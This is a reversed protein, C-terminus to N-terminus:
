DLRTKLRRKWERITGGKFQKVTKGKQRMTRTKLDSGLLEALEDASMGLEKLYALAAAHIAKKEADLYKLQKTKAVTYATTALHKNVAKQLPRPLGKATLPNPSAEEAELELGLGFRSLGMLYKTAEDEIGAEKAAKKIETKARSLRQSRQYAAEERFPTGAKKARSREFRLRMAESGMAGIEGENYTQLGMGFITALGIAARPTVGEERLADYIDRLSMPMALDRGVTALTTEEGIVNQLGSVNIATGVVPSFKTRAFTAMIDFVTKGGFPVEGGALTFKDRLPLLTGAQTKTTGWAIRSGAVMLTGIGGTLDLRENGSKLKMFDSSLPNLELSPKNEEDDDPWIEALLKVAVILTGMGMLIKAYDKAIVKVVRKNDLKAAQWLPQFTALQLSRAFFRPSFLSTALPKGAAKWSGLSGRGTLLMAWHALVIAEEHTVKGGDYRGTVDMLSEFIWARMNHIPSEYARASAAVIPTKETWPGIYVEEQLSEHRRKIDLGAAEAERAHPLEERAIIQKFEAKLGAKGTIDFGWAQFAPIVSKAFLLPHVWMAYWNQRGFASVDASTVVARSLQVMNVALAGARGMTTRREEEAKRQGEHFRAIIKQKRWLLDLIEKDTQEPKRPRPGFDKKEIRQKWWELRKELSKIYQQRKRQAIQEQYVTPGTKRAKDRKQRLGALTKEKARIADNTIPKGKEKLGLRGEGIDEELQRIARNLAREKNIEKQAESIVKVETVLDKRLIRLFKLEARLQVLRAHEPNSPDLVKEKREIKNLKNLDLEKEVSAILKELRSTATAVWSKLVAEKSPGFDGEKKAINVEKILAVEDETPERQEVGTAKAEEDLRIMDDLKAIQQMQGIIDRAEVSVADTSLERYQGYGSIADIVGRWDLAHKPGLIANLEIGVQEQVEWWDTKGAQVVYRLLKKALRTVAAPKPADTGAPDFKDGATTKMTPPKVKSAVKAWAAELETRYVSVDLGDASMDTLFESLHQIGDEVAFVAADDTMQQIEAQTYEEASLAVDLKPKGMLASIMKVKHAAYKNRAAKSVGPKPAVRVKPAYTGDAIQQKIEDIQAETADTTTDKRDLEDGIERLENAMSELLAEEKTSPADGGRARTREGVMDMLSFKPGIVMSRAQLARGVETGGLRDLRQIEDIDRKAQDAQHQAIVKEAPNSDPISALKAIAAKRENDKMAYHLLLGTHEEDNIIDSPNVTLKSMIGPVWNPDRAIHAAADTLLKVNAKKAAAALKPMKDIERKKDTLAKNLGIGGAAITAAARAEKEAETTVVKEKPLKASELIVNVSSTGRGSVKSDPAVTNWARVLKKAADTTRQRGLWEDVALVFDGFEGRRHERLLRTLTEPETEGAKEASFPVDPEGEEEAFFDKVASELNEEEEGFERNAADELVELDSLKRQTPIPEDVVDWIAQSPNDVDGELMGPHEREVSHALVDLRKVAAIARQALAPPLKERIREPKAAYDLGSNALAAKVDPPMIKRVHQLFAAKDRALKNMEPLSEKRATERLREVDVGSEKALRESEEEFVRRRQKPRQAPETVTPKKAVPETVRKEIDRFLRKKADFLAEIAEYIRGFLTGPEPKATVAYAKAIEERGGFSAVEESTIVGMSELAHILEHNVTDHGATSHLYLHGGQLGTKTTKTGFVFAGKPKTLGKEKAEAEIVADHNGLEATLQNGDALTIAISLADTDFEMMAGKLLRNDYAGLRAKMGQIIEEQEPTPDPKGEPSTIPPEPVEEVAPGEDAFPTMAKLKAELETDVAGAEEVGARGEPERELEEPAAEPVAEESVVREAAEDEAEFEGEEAVEEQASMARRVSDAFRARNATINRDSFMDGDTRRWRSWQKRSPIKGSDKIKRAETPNGQVWETISEPVQEEEAPLEERREPVVIDAAGAVGRVAGQFIGFGAATASVDRWYKGSTYDPFEELGTVGRAVEGAMEELTESIVGQIGGKRLAANLQEMTRGSSLFRSAIGAKMAAIKAGMPIKAFAPGLMETGVEIYQDLYGQAAATLMSKDEKSVFINLDNVEDRTLSFEPTMRQIASEAVRPVNVAAQAGIGLGWKTVQKALVNKVGVAMAKEVATMTAKRAPGTFAFEIATAPISTAIDWAFRLWSRNGLHEQEAIYNAVAYREAFGDKGERINKLAGTVYFAKGIGVGAGTGPLRSAVYELNSVGEEKFRKRAMDVHTQFSTEGTPAETFGAAALRAEQSEVDGKLGVAAAPAEPTVLPEAPGFGREELKRLTDDVISM